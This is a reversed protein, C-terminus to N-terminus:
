GLSSLNSTFNDKSEETDSLEKTLHMGSQPFVMVRRRLKRRRNKSVNSFRSTNEILAKEIFDSLLPMKKKEKKSIQARCLFKHM